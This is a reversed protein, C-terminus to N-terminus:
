VEAITEGIESDLWDNFGQHYTIEDLEKIACSTDFDMGMIEVSGYVDDLFEDYRKELDDDTLENDDIWQQTNEDWGDDYNVDEPEYVVVDNEEVFDDWDSKDVYTM